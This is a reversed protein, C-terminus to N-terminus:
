HMGAPTAPTVATRRIPGVTRRTRDLDAAAQTTTTPTTADNTDNTDNPKPKRPTYGKRPGNDKSGKRRGSGQIRKTKDASGRVRGSCWFVFISFHLITIPILAPDPKTM